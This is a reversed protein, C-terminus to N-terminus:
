QRCAGGEARTGEDRGGLYAKLVEPDRQIAEPPGEAIKRGADLAVVRDSIGMLVKMNHEILVVTIGGQRISRILDMLKGSDFPNMGAAPEDLLLVGPDSALARAIELRRQEGYALNAALEHMKGDLGAFHLCAAAKDRADAETRSHTRSRLVADALTAKLHTHMGVLVNDLVSMRAFLRINQFTRRVGMAAITYPPLGSIVEGRYEVTGATPQYIGTLVNFLTTKGSGNPGIIGLIENEAVDVNVDTLAHLGGFDKSIGKVGVM